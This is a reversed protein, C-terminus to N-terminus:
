DDGDTVEKVAYDEGEVIISDSVEVKGSTVLALAEEENQAEVYWIDDVTHTWTVKYEPM